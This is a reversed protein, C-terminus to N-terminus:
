KYLPGASEIVCPKMGFQLGVLEQGSRPDPCSMIEGYRDDDMGNYGISWKRGLSTVFEIGQLGAMGFRVPSSESHFRVGVISEKEAVKFHFTMPPYNVATDRRREMESKYTSDDSAPTHDPYVLAKAWSSKHKYGIMEQQGDAFSFSFGCIVDPAWDDAAETFNAQISEVQRGVLDLFYVPTALVPPDADMSETFDVGHRDGVIYDRPPCRGIWRTLYGFNMRQEIHGTTHRQLDGMIVGFKTIHQTPYESDRCPEVRFDFGMLDEADFMGTVGIIETGTEAYFAHMLENDTWIGAKYKPETTSDSTLLGIGYICANEPREKAVLDQFPGLSVVMGTIVTEQPITVTDPFETRYGFLRSTDEDYLGFEVGVIWRHGPFGSDGLRHYVTVSQLQRGRQLSPVFYVESFVDCFDPHVDLAITARRRSALRRVDPDVSGANARVESFRGDIKQIIGRCNIYIRLRNQLGIYEVRSPISAERLNYFLQRYHITKSQHHIDSFLSTNNLWPAACPLRSKWFRRPLSSAMDRFSSSALLLNFASSSQLLEFVMLRIDMPLHDFCDPSPYSKSAIRMGKPIVDFTDPHAPDTSESIVQSINLDKCPDAVLWENDACPEWTEAQYEETGGYGDGGWNIAHAYAESWTLMIFHLERIDLPGAEPHMVKHTQEMINLCNDHVLFGDENRLLGQTLTDDVQDLPVGPYFLNDTSNLSGKQTVMVLEASGDDLNEIGPVKLSLMRADDLWRLQDRSIHGADYGKLSRCYDRHATRYHGDHGAPLMEDGEGVDADQDCDCYDDWFDTTDGAVTSRKLFNASEFPGGCINCYPRINM